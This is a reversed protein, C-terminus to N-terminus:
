VRVVEEGEVGGDTGGGPGIKEPHEGIKHDNKEGHVPLRGFKKRKRVGTGAEAGHHGRLNKGDGRREDDNKHAAGDGAFLQEESPKGDGGGDEAGGNTEDEGIAALATDRVIKEVGFAGEAAGFFDEGGGKEVAGVGEADIGKGVARIDFDVVAEGTEGSVRAFFDEASSRPLHIEPDIEIAAILSEGQQIAGRMEAIEFETEAGLGALNAEALHASGDDVETILAAGEDDNTVDGLALFGVVNEAGAFLTETRENAIKVKSNNKVCGVGADFESIAGRMIHKAKGVANGDAFVQRVKTNGGDIFVAAVDRLGFAGNESNEARALGDLIGEHAKTMGTGAIDEPRKAVDYRLEAGISFNDTEDAREGVDGCHFICLARDVIEGRLKQLKLIFLAAAEAALKVVAKRLGNEGDIEAEGLNALRQGRLFFGGRTGEFFGAGERLLHGAFDAREGIEKMRRQEVIEAEDRGEPFINVAETLAAADLRLEEGVGIERAEGLGDFDGKEAYNLFAEGVDLAVGAAGGGFDM